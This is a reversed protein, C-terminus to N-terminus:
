LGFEGIKKYGRKDRFKNSKKKLIQKFSGKPSFNVNRSLDASRGKHSPRYVVSSQVRPSKARSKIEEKLCSEHFMEQTEPTPSHRRSNKFKKQSPSRRSGKIELKKQSGEDNELNKPKFPYDNFIGYKKSAFAKKKRRLIRSNTDSNRPTPDLSRARNPDFKVFAIYQDQEEDYNFMINNKEILDECNSKLDEGLKDYEIEIVEFKKM